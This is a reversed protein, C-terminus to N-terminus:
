SAAVIYPLACMETTLTVSIHFQLYVYNWSRQSGEEYPRLYDRVSSLVTCGLVSRLTGLWLPLSIARHVRTKPIKGSPPFHIHLSITKTDANASVMIQGSNVGACDGDDATTGLALCYLVPTLFM